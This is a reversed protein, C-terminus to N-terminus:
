VDDRRATKQSEVGIDGVDKRSMNIIQKNTLKWIGGEKLINLRGTVKLTRILM